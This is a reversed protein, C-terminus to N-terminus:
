KEKSKLDWYVKISPKDSEKYFGFIKNDEIRQLKVKVDFMEIPVTLWSEYQTVGIFHEMNNGKFRSLLEKPKKLLKENPMSDYYNEDDQTYVKQGLAELRDKIKNLVLTKGSASRGIILCNM